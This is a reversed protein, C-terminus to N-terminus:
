INQQLFFPYCSVLHYYYGPVNIRYIQSWQTTFIAEYNRWTWKNLRLFILHIIASSHWARWNSQLRYNRGSIPHRSFNRTLHVSVRSLKYWKKKYNSVELLSPAKKFRLFARYYYHYVSITGITYQTYNVAAAFNLLLLIESTMLKQLYWFKVFNERIIM